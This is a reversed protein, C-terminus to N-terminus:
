HLTLIPSEPGFSSPGSHRPLPADYHGVDCEVPNAEVKAAPRMAGTPHVQGQVRLDLRTSSFCPRPVGHCSSVAIRLEKIDPHSGEVHKYNNKKNTQKEWATMALARM